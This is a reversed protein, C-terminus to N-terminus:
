SACGLARWIGHDLGVVLAAAAPAACVLGAALLRVRRRSRPQTRSAAVAWPLVAVLVIGLLAQQGAWIRGASEHPSCAAGFVRATVLTATGAVATGILAGAALATRAGPLGAGRAHPRDESHTM